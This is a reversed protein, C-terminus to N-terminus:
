TLIVWHHKHARGGDLGPCENGTAVWFLQYTSSAVEGERGEEERGGESVGKMRGERGGGEKRCRENEGGERRGRGGGERREEEERGEKRGGEERMRRRGRLDCHGATSTEVDMAPKWERVALGSREGELEVRICMKVPSFGRLEVCVFSCLVNWITQAGKGRGGGGEGAGEGRM